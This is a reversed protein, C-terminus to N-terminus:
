HTGAPQDSEASGHRSENKWRVPIANLFVSNTREVWRDFMDSPLAPSISSRRQEEILKVFPAIDRLVAVRIQVYRPVVTWPTRTQPVMIQVVAGGSLIRKEGPKIIVMHPLTPGPPVEAGISLTITRTDADFSADAVKDAIAITSSSFNEIQYTVNLPSNSSITDQLLQADVRVDNDRGLARRPDNFDVSAALAAAEAIMSVAVAAFFPKSSRM